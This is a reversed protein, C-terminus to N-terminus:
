RHTDATKDKQDDDANGHRDDHTRLRTRESDTVSNRNSPGPSACWVTTRACPAPAGISESKM